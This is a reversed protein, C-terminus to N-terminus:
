KVMLFNLLLVCASEVGVFSFGLFPSLDESVPVQLIVALSRRGGGLAGGRRANERGPPFLRCGYLAIWMHSRKESVRLSIMRPRVNDRM